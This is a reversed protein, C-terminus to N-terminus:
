SAAAVHRDIHRALNTGAAECHERALREARAADGGAIAAAIAEHEAWIAGRAGSGRLVAGMARRIHQWHRGTSEAILPNGSAAYIQEHFEADADILAGVDDGAAAERGRQMVEAAIAVRGNAALRAALGDLVSRVQYLRAIMAGDLPAVMLGRAGGSSGSKVPADVVFGDKKLMRLAQLVPQRSVALKEALEEQTLRHGPALDGRSIAAMLSGYVQDVLDPAAHLQTLSM